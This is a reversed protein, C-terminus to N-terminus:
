EVHAPSNNSIRKFYERVHMGAASSNGLYVWYTDWDVFTIISISDPFIPTAAKVLVAIQWSTRGIVEMLGENVWGDLVHEKGDKIFKIEPMTYIARLGIYQATMKGMLRGLGETEKETLRCDEIM